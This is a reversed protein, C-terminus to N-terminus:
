WRDDDDRERREHVAHRAAARHCRRATAKRAQPHSHRARRPQLLHGVSTRLLGDPVRVHEVNSGRRINVVVTHPHSPVSRALQRRVPKVRAPLMRPKATVVPKAEPVAAVEPVTAPPEKTMEAPPVIKIVGPEIVGPKAAEPAAPTAAAVEVPKAPEAPATAMKALPVISTEGGAVTAAQRAFMYIASHTVKGDGGLLDARAQHDGLPLPHSVDVLWRGNGSVTTSGIPEDNLYLKLKRGAIGRGSLTITGSDDAGAVFSLGSLVLDSAAETVTAPADSAAPAQQVAATDAPPAPEQESGTLSKMLDNFKQNLTDAVSGASEKAAADDTPKAAQAVVTENPDPLPDSVAPTAASPTAAIPAPLSPVLAVPAPAAAEAKPAVVVPQIPAPLSAVKVEPLDPVPASAVPAPAPLPSAVTAVVAPEPKAPGASSSLATIWNSFSRGAFQIQGPDIQGPAALDPATVASLQKASELAATQLRNPENGAPAGELIAPIKIAAVTTATEMALQQTRDSLAQMRDGTGGPLPNPVARLTDATATAAYQSALPALAQAESLLYGAGSFGSVILAIKVPFPIKAM